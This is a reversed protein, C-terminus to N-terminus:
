TKTAADRGSTHFSKNENLSLNLLEIYDENSIEKDVINIKEDDKNIHYYLDPKCGLFPTLTIEKGM